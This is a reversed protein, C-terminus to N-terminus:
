KGCDYVKRVGLQKEAVVRCGNEAPTRGNNWRCVTGPKCYWAWEDVAADGMWQINITTPTQQDVAKRRPHELLAGCLIGTAFIILTLFPNRTM